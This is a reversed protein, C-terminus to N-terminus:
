SPRFTNDSLRLLGEKQAIALVKDVEPDELRCAARLWEGLATEEIEHQQKVYDATAQAAMMWNPDWVESDIWIDVPNTNCQVLLETGPVGVANDWVVSLPPGGSGPIFPSASGGTSVKFRLSFQDTAKVTVVVRRNPFAWGFWCKVEFNPNLRVRAGNSFRAVWDEAMEEEKDAGVVL